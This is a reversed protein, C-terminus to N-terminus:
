GGVQLDAEAKTPVDVQQMLLRLLLAQTQQPTMMVQTLDHDVQNKTAPDSCCAAPDTM